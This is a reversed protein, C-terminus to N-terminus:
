ALRISRGERAVTAGVQFYARRDRPLPHNPSFPMAELLAVLPEADYGARELVYGAVADAFREREWRDPSREPDFHHGLEHAVIGLILSRGIDSGAELRGLADLGRELWAENLAVTVGNSQANRLAADFVLQPMRDSRGLVAGAFRMEQDVIMRLTGVQDARRM